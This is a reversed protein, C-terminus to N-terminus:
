LLRKEYIGIIKKLREEPKWYTHMWLVSESKLKEFAIVNGLKLQILRALTIELEGLSMNLWPLNCMPCGTVNQLLLKVENSLNAIVVNSTALGELSSLHYGGTVCEDIVIDSMRKYELVKAKSVGTLVHVILRNGFKIKLSGLISLTKAYGKGRCTNDYNSLEIKSTPSFVITCKDPDSPVGIYEKDYIPVLNPIHELNKYLLAHKQSVTICNEEGYTHLIRNKQSPESHFQIIFSKDGFSFGKFSAPGENHFHLINALGIYQSILAASISHEYDISFNACSLSKVSVYVDSHWNSHQNLMRSLIGPAGACPTKAM